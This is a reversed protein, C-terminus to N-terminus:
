KFKIAAMKVLDSGLGKTARQIASASVGRSGTSAKGNSGIVIRRTTFAGMNCEEDNGGESLQQKGAPQINLRLLNATDQAPSSGLIGAVTSAPAPTSAVFPSATSVASGNTTTPSAITRLQQLQSQAGMAQQVPPRNAVLVSM